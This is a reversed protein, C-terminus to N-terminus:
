ISLLRVVLTTCRITFADQARIVARTLGHRTTTFPTFTRVSWVTIGASLSATPTRIGTLPMSLIGAGETHVTSIAQGAVPIPLVVILSPSAYELPPVPMTAMALQVNAPHPIWVLLM